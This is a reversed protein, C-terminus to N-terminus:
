TSVSTLQSKLDANDMGDPKRLIATVHVTGLERLVPVRTLWHLRRIGTYHLHTVSLQSSSIIREFNALSMRNLGSEVDEFHRAGDSRYKARVTMISQESFWLQLWPIRCFFHMHSGYPAWWPPGFSILILGGACVAHRMTTLAAIPDDYHEMANLSIIIDWTRGEPIVDIFEVLSGHAAAADALTRANTDFGTVSASFRSALAAAQNGRGCGFDLVRKGRVLAPLDTYCELLTSLPDVDPSSDPKAEVYERSFKELLLRGIM